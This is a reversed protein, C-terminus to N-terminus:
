VKVLLLFGGIGSGMCCALEPLLRLWMVFSIAVPLGSERSATRAVYVVHDNSSEFKHPITLNVHGCERTSNISSSCLCLLGETESDFGCSGGSRTCRNCGTDPISFSFKIGYSWDMPGVGKLNDTDYVSTYHTCDLINMSMFKVTSYDTFCCPPSSNTLLHFIKFSNCATYLEDCSHGRVQQDHLGPNPSSPSRM